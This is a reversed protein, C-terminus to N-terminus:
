RVSPRVTESPPWDTPLQNPSPVSIRLVGRWDSRTASRWLLTACIGNSVKSQSRWWRGDNLSKRSICTFSRMCQNM